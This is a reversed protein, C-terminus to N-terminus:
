VQEIRQREYDRRRLVARGLLALDEKTRLHERKLPEPLKEIDIDVKNEYNAVYAETNILMDRINEEGYRAVFTKGWDNGYKDCFMARIQDPFLTIFGIDPRRKVIEIMMRHAAPIIMPKWDEGNVTYPLRVQFDRAAQRDLGYVNDDTFEEEMPSNRTLDFTAITLTHIAPNGIIYNTLMQRQEDTEGPFGVLIFCFNLIGAQATANLVTDTYSTEVKKNMTKLIAPDNTELGWHIKRCGGRYLQEMFGPASFAKELRAFTEWKADIGRREIEQSLEFLMSPASTDEMFKFYTAKRGYRSQTLAQIELIEDIVKDAERVRYSNSGFPIACFACRAYCGRTTQLPVLMEPFLYQDFPIDEYSAKPLNASKLTGGSRRKIGVNSRLDLINVMEVTDGRLERRLIDRVPIEGDWLALYDAYSRIGDHEVMSDACRTVMQGGMIIVTEPMLRRLVSALTFAPIIQDQFTIAIGVAKAEAPLIANTVFREYFDIFPNAARDELAKIVEDFSTRDYKMGLSRLGVQLGKWKKSRDSLRRELDNYYDLLAIPNEDCQEQTIFPVDNGLFERFFMINSDLARASFGDAELFAKLLPLNLQAHLPSSVPTNVLICDIKTM